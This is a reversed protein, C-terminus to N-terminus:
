HCGMGPRGSANDNDDSHLHMISSYIKEEDEGLRIMKM